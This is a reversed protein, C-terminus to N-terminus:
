GVERLYRTRQDVFGERSRIGLRAFVQEESEGQRILFDYEEIQTPLTTPRGRGQQEPTWPEANPDDIDDWALPPPYGLRIAHNRARATASSVPPVRMSLRDYAEAIRWWSRRNVTESRMVYQLAEPSNWGADAAIMRLSWGMRQLARVRRRAGISPLKRPRGLEVDYRRYREFRARGARCDECATEGLRRHALYGANTGHRPDGPTM